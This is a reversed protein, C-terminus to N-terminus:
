SYQFVGASDTIQEAPPLEPVPPATDSTSVFWMWSTISNPERGHETFKQDVLVRALEGDETLGVHVGLYGHGRGRVSQLVYSAGAQDPRATPIVAFLCRTAEPAGSATQPAGSRSTLQEPCPQQAAATAQGLLDVMDVASGAAATAVQVEHPTDTLSRHWRADPRGQTFPIQGYEVSSVVESVHENSFTRSEHREASGPLSMFSVGHGHLPSLTEDTVVESVEESSLSSSGDAAATDRSVAVAGPRSTWQQAAAHLQTLAEKDGSVAPADPLYAEPVAVDSRLASVSFWAHDWADVLWVGDEQILHYTERYEASYPHPNGTEDARLHTYRGIYDVALVGEYEGPRPTWEHPGLVVGDGVLRLGPCGPEDERQATITLQVQERAQANAPDALWQRTTVTGYRSLADGAAPGCLHEPDVHTAAVVEAVTRMAAAVQEASLSGVQAAPPQTAAVADTLSELTLPPADPLTTPTVAEAAAILEDAIDSLQAAQQAAPVRGPQPGSCAAVSLAALALLSVGTPVSTTVAFLEKHDPGLDPATLHIAATLENPARRPELLPAARHPTNRPDHTRHTVLGDTSSAAPSGWRRLGVARGYGNRRLQGSVALNVTRGRLAADLHVSRAGASEGRQLM